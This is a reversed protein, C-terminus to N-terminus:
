DLTYLLDVASSVGGEAELSWRRSLRYEMHVRSGPAFLGVEYSLYLRPSLYTGVVLWPSQTGTDHEIRVVDLGFERGILEALLDGGVLVASQAATVLANAEGQGLTSMPQGLVLYSLIDTQAM